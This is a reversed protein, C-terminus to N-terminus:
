ASGLLIYANGTLSHTTNAVSYNLGIGLNLNYAIGSIRGLYNYCPVIANYSGGASVLANVPTSTPFSASMAYCSMSSIRIDKGLGNKLTFGLAGNSFNASTCPFSANLSCTNVLGSQFAISPGSINFGRIVGVNTQVQQTLLSSNFLSIVTLNQTGVYETTKVLSRAGGIVGSVPIQYTSCYSIGNASEVVGYCVNNVATHNSIRAYVFSSNGLLSLTAVYNTAGGVGTYNALLKADMLGLGSPVPYDLARNPTGSASENLAQYCTMSGSYALIKLWGGAYWSCLTTGNSIQVITLNGLSAQITNSKMGRGVAAAAFINPRVYSSLWISYARDGNGYKATSARINNIYGATLNLVPEVFNDIQPNGVLAFASTNYTDYLYSDVAYGSNSMNLDERSVLGNSPLQEYPTANAPRMIVLTAGTTTNARDSIDYLRSPDAVASVNYTGPKIPTYNFPIVTQKGAPLTVKYLTTLNGNVFLGVSVNTIAGGGNNYVSIPLPVNQYPYSVSGAATGNMRLVMSIAQQYFYRFYLAAGAIVVILLMWFYIERKM